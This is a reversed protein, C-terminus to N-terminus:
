NEIQTLTCNGRYYEWVECDKGNSSNICNAAIPVGNEYLTQIQYGDAICKEHAPNALKERNDPAAENGSMQSCASMLVLMIVAVITIYFGISNVM